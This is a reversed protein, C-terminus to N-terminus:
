QWIIEEDIKNIFEAYKDSLSIVKKHYGQYGESFLMSNLVAEETIEPVLRFISDLLSDDMYKITAEKQSGRVNQTSFGVFLDGSGNGAYSGTRGIGIEIRKLMRKIQRENVPLDTALVCVISGVEPQKEAEIASIKQGKFIFESGDSSGFNSNLIIGLHYTQDGVKFERSSSGIGGKYGHCIMGRGAGIAGQLHNTDVAKLALQYDKLGMVRDRSNSLSGDNCELVIPNISYVDRGLQKLEALEENIVADSIKGVNLTTTMVIPTEITGIEDIQILGVSKGFGNFVYSGAVVKNMFMNEKHPRVVTLGTHYDGEDLTYQGVLVGPVDCINNQFGTRASGTKVFRKIQYADQKIVDDKFHYQSLDLKTENIIDLHHWFALLVLKNLLKELNSSAKIETIQLRDSLVFQLYDDGYSLQNNTLCFKPEM